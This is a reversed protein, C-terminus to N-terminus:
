KKHHSRRACRSHYRHKKHCHPCTTKAHSSHHRKKKM